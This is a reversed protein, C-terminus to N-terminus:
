APSLVGLLGDGRPVDARFSGDGAEPGGTGGASAFAWVANWAVPLELTPGPLGALVQDDVQVSATEEGRNLLLLAVRSGTMPKAWVDFAGRQARRGQVGAFDAQVELMVPDTLIALLWDPLTALDNGLMLPANLIAWAALHARNNAPTLSGNGAELM